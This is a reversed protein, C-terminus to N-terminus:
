QMTYIRQGSPPRWCTNPHTRLNLPRMSPISLQWPWSWSFSECQWLRMEPKVGLLIHPKLLTPGAKKMNGLLVKASAKKAEKVMAIIGDAHLTHGPYGEPKKKM